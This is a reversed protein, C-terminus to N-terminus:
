EARDIRIRIRCGDRGVLLTTIGEDMIVQTSPNQKEDDWRQEGTFLHHSYRGRGIWLDLKANICGPNNNFAGRVIRAPPGPRTMVEELADAPAKARDEAAALSAGLLAALTLGSPALRLSLDSLVRRVVSKTAAEAM